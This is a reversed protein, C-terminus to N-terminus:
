RIRRRPAQSKENMARLQRHCTGLDRNLTIKDIQGCYARGGFIPGFFPIECFKATVGTLIGDRRRAPRRPRTSSPRVGGTEVGGNGVAGAAPIAGQLGDKELGRGLLRSLPAPLGLARARAVHELIMYAGLSRQPENPDFFSYVMSLGDELIDTLCTAVLPARAPRRGAPSLAGAPQGCPQGRDDHFLRADGHRGHRRRQPPFRSLRSVARITRSDAQAAGMTASLDANRALIRRQTRGPTFEDCLIRM